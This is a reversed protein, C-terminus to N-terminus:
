LIRSVKKQFEALRKMALERMNKDKVLEAFLSTESMKARGAIERLRRSSTPSRSASRGGRSASRRNGSGSRAGRLPTRRAGSRSRHRRHTSQPPSPPTSPAGRSHHSHHSHHAHSSSRPSHRPSNHRTIILAPSRSRSRRWNRSKSVSRHVKLRDEREYDMPPLPSPTRRKSRSIPPPTRSRRRSSSSSQPPYDHRAVHLPPTMSRRKLPSLRRAPSRRRPSLNRVPSRRYRQELPSPTRPRLRPSPTRVPREGEELSQPSIPPRPRVANDILGDGLAEQPPLERFPSHKAVHDSGNQSANGRSSSRSHKNPPYDKRSKRISSSSEDDEVIRESSKSRKKKKKKHGLSHSRSSKKKKEKKLRYHSSSPSVSSRLKHVVTIVPPPEDIIDDRWGRSPPRLPPLHPSHPYGPPSAGPSGGRRLPPPYAAYAPPPPHSRYEGSPPSDESQIEGAEPSSLEESSV